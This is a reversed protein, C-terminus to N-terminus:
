SPTKGVLFNVIEVQVSQLNDHVELHDLEMLRYLHAGYAIITLASPNIGAADFVVESSGLLGRRYLDFIESAVAVNETGSVSKYADQKLFSHGSLANRAGIFGGLIHLVVLQRYTLDEALKLLQNAMPRSIESHFVINAYLRALYPTKLEEYEREALRLTGELIEEAASRDCDGDDFFGDDRLHEGEDMKKKVLSTAQALVSGMRRKESDSLLREQLEQGVKQMLLEIGKGVIAGGAMGAPGAIVSGIVGGAVAGAASGASQLAADIAKQKKSDANM